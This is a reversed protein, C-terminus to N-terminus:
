GSCKGLPRPLQVRLATLAPVENVRSESRVAGGAGADPCCLVAHGRPRLLADLLCGDQVTRHEWLSKVGPHRRCSLQAEPLGARVVVRLPQKVDGVAIQLLCLQRGRSCGQAVWTKAFVFREAM